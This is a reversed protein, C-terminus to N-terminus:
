RFFFLVFLGCLTAAHAAEACDERGNVGNKKTNKKSNKKKKKAALKTKFCMDGVQAAASNPIFDSLLRSLSSSVNRKGGHSRGDRQKM